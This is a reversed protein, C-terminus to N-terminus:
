GETNASVYEVLDHVTHMKKLEEEPIEPLGFENEVEMILEVVDLSDIGLDDTFSTEESVEEPTLDFQECIMEIIREYM